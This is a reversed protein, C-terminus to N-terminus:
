KFSSGLVRESRTPLKGHGNYCQRFALLRVDSRIDEAMKRAENYGRSHLREPIASHDIKEISRGFTHLEILNHIPSAAIAAVQSHGKTQQRGAAPQLLVSL